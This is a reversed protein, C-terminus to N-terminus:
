VHPSHLAILKRQHFEKADEAHRRGWGKSIAFLYQSSPYIASSSYAPMTMSEVVGGMPTSWCQTFPPRSQARSVIQEIKYISCNGSLFQVLFFLRKQFVERFHRMRNPMIKSSLLCNFSISEFREGGEREREGGLDDYTTSHWTRESSTRMRASLIRGFLAAAPPRSSGFAAVVDAAAAENAIITDTLLPSPSSSRFFAEAASLKQQFLSIEAVL